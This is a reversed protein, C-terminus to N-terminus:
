KAGRASLVHMMGLKRNMKDATGGVLADGDLMLIQGKEIASLIKDLMPSTATAAAMQGAMHRSVQQDAVSRLARQGAVEQENYAGLVAAAQHRAATEVDDTKNDIGIEAGAGIDEFLKIAKRSPSHSDAEQRAASLFGQVLSRAKSLLSSRKSEAGHVMGDTMDEGVSEADAYANAFEDMAKQYNTEAEKVMAETYGDVGNEFNKKTLEAKLGADVAEKRLTDLVKATETDVKDSYTGFSGGKKALIDVAKQYNGELVATQAAEYNVITDHYAGYDIAAGEYAAKKEALIEAEKDAAEQAKTAMLGHVAAAEPGSTKLVDTYTQWADWAKKQAENNVALQAVYDEHAHNMAAFAETENQIATIYDTNAAEVLSNATKSLIVKDISEVLRDYQQIVGDVLKYETGLAENLQTLIFNVRAEDKKQVRGSADTLNDLESTLDKVHGMEATIGALTEETAKKQDRFSEAAADAAEILEREAETLVEVPKNAEATAATFAIIAATVGVILTTVLGIPSAAMLADLVKQAAAQALTAVTWGKTAVETAITAVKHAVMAATVGALGASIAPLNQRVWSSIDKIAPIVDKRIFQALDTLPDSAEELITTGLEKIDTVVPEVAKGVKALTANWKENAENARIVEKNTTKYQVAANKYLKTLTKTIKQQREQETSCEDLSAQFDDESVGAWNLADALGGTLSGTKATENAAEALGEIPLSDGFVAYVGTMAETMAALEEETDCLKALHSAAEVAQDTEGLVGQLAEYTKKAAEATHGSDKFSTDLKGLATRYERSEEALAVIAGVAAVAAATLAALGNKAAEAAEIDLDDLDKESDKAKKGLNKIDKGTDESEGGLEKMQDSTEEAAKKYGNLKREAEVIERRLARYQEANVDGNEAQKQMDKEADRLIDLKKTTTAIADSLVAQKQSLLEVNGPDLKLAKNIQGLEGSLSRSKKDVKDLSDYLDSTDGGIKITLGKLVKSAM